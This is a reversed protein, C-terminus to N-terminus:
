ACASLLPKASSIIRTTKGPPGAEALRGNEVFWIIDVTSLRKPNHSVILITGKFEAVIKDLLASASRDLHADAEDLLLIEPNGMLARALEIRQRQGLSM